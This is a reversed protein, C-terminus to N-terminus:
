KQNQCQLNKSAIFVCVTNYEDFIFILSVPWSEENPTGLVTLVYCLQEIDSDGQVYLINLLNSPLQM